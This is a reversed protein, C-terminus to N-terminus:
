AVLALLVVAALLLWVVRQAWTALPPACRLALVRAFVAAALLVVELVSVQAAELTAPRQPAGKITHTMVTAGNLDTQDGRLGDYRLSQGALGPGFVHM